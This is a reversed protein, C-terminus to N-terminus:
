HLYPCGVGVTMAVAAATPGDALQANQATTMHEVAVQAAYLITEIIGCAEARLRHELNSPGVARRRGRPDVADDNPLMRGTVQGQKLDGWTRVLM